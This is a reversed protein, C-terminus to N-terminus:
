APQPLSINLRDFKQEPNIQLCLTSLYSSIKTIVYGVTFEEKLDNSFLVIEIFTQSVLFSPSFSGYYVSTFNIIHKTNTNGAVNMRSVEPIIDPIEPPPPPFDPEPEAMTNQAVAQRIGSM